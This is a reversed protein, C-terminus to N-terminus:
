KFAFIQLEKLVHRRKTKIAAQRANREEQLLTISEFVVILVRSLSATVREAAPGTAFISAGKNKSPPRGFFLLRM